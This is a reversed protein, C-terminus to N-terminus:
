NFNVLFHALARLKTADDHHCKTQASTENAMARENEELFQFWFSSLHM